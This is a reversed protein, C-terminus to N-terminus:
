AAARALASHAIEQDIRSLDHLGLLNERAEHHESHQAGDDDLQLLPAVALDRWPGLGFVSLVLLIPMIPNALNIPATASAARANVSAACAASLILIPSPGNM